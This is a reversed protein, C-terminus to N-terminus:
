PASSSTVLARWEEALASWRGGGAIYTDALAVLRTRGESTSGPGNGRVFSSFLAHLTLWQADPEERAVLPALREEAAGERGAAIDAAAAIRALDENEGAGPAANATRAAEELKGLRAYAEALSVAIAGPPLGAEVATRWAIVADEDRGDIAHCAGLLYQGVARNAGQEIARRVQVSIAMANDGLAYFGLGQLLAATGAEAPSVHAAPLLEAFRQERAAAFLASLAPTRGEAGLVDLLVAVPEPSALAARRFAPAFPPASALLAQPTAAIRFRTEGSATSRSIRDTATIALRYEGRPLSGLPAAMAALIPHGLALDFDVPLTSENYALPSLTGAPQEGSATLRFLRLGVSVDPKGLPTPSANIVQFAVSLREDSAFTRDGAPEIETAGITYPRATQQDARLIETRTRIEDAVIISGLALGADASPLSLARRLVGTSTARNKSDLVAWAVALDYDGPPATMARRISLAGGKSTLRAAMDFDEFPLLDTTRGASGEMEARRRRDREEREAKARERKEDMLRLAALSQGSGDRTMIAGLGGAPFEGSPVQVSRGAQMPLPDSREGNLWAEVASREPTTTSSGSHNTTLRVYLALPTGPDLGEPAPASFAVYHSGDSARFLHVPWDKEAVPDSRNDKVATVLTLLTARQEKSLSPATGQAAVIAPVSLVGFIVVVRGLPKIM